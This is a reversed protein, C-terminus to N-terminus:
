GQQGAIQIYLIESVQNLVGGYLGFLDPIDLRESDQVLCMKVYDRDSLLPTLAHTARRLRTESDTSPDTVADILKWYSDSLHDGHDSGVYAFSNCVGDIEPTTLKM